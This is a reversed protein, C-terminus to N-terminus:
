DRDTKGYMIGAVLTIGVVLCIGSGLAFVLWAEVM